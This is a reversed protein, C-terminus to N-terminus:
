RPKGEILLGLDDLRGHLSRLLEADMYEPSEPLMGNEKLALLIRAELGYYQHNRCDEIRGSISYKPNVVFVKSGDSEIDTSVPTVTLVKEWKTIRRDFGPRRIYYGWYYKSWITSGLFTIFLVIIVISLFWRSYKGVLIAILLAFVYCVVVNFFLNLWYIEISQDTKKEDVYVKNIKLCPGIGMMFSTEARGASWTGGSTSLLLLAYVMLLCFLIITFVRPKVLKVILSSM